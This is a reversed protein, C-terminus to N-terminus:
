RENTWSESPNLKRAKQELKELSCNAKKGEEKPAPKSKINEPTGKTVGM